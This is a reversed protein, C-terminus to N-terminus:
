SATEVAVNKRSRDTPFIFKHYVVFKLLWFVINVALFALGVLALHYRHDTPIHHAIAGTALSTLVISAASTAWYLVMQRGVRTREADKWIWYRSMLYSPVTAVINAILAATTAGVVHGGYLILLTAESIAFALVSTAGYRVLRAIQARCRFLVGRAWTANREIPGYRSPEYSDVAASADTGYDGPDAAPLTTSSSHASEEEADVRSISLADGESMQELGVKEGVQHGLVVTSGGVFGL